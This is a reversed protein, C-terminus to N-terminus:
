IQFVWSKVTVCLNVLATSLEEVKMEDMLFENYPSTQALVSIIVLISSSWWYGFCLKVVFNDSPIIRRCAISPDM